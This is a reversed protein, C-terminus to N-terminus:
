FMVLKKSTQIAIVGQTGRAHFNKLKKHTKWFGKETAFLLSSNADKLVSLSICKVGQPM